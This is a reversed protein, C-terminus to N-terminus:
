RSTRATERERARVVDSTPRRVDFSSALEDTTARERRVISLHIFPSVHHSQTNDDDRVDRRRRVTVYKQIM